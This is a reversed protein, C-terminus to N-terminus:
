GTKSIPLKAENHFYATKDWELNPRKTECGIWLINLKQYESQFLLLMVDSLAKNHKTM